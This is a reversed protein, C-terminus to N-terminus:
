DRHFVGGIARITREQGVAQAGRQFFGGASKAHGVGRCEIEAYTQRHKARASTGHGSSGGELHQSAAVVDGMGTHFDEKTLLYSPFGLLNSQKRYVTPTLCVVVAQHDAGGIPAMFVSQVPGAICPLLLVRDIRQDGRTAGVEERM